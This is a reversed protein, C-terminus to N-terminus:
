PHMIASGSGAAAIETEAHALWSEATNLVSGIRAVSPIAPNTSGAALGDEALARYAETHQALADETTANAIADAEVALRKRLERMGNATQVVLSGVEDGGELPRDIQLGRRVLRQLRTDLRELQDDWYAVTAHGEERLAPMNDPKTCALALPLLLLALRNV